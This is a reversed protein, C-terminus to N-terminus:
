YRRKRKKAAGAKQVKKPSAATVAPERGAAPQPGVAVPAPQRIRTPRPTAAARAERGRTEMNKLVVLIQSANFISSYAGITVGIILAISFDQLTPGGFLALALLTFEVTLVTNVSRAMTELLSINTTEGFTRGKHLKLNERIRDFIVITDHVSYGVVTLIAAVFPSNVERQLLAFAGVLVLVDHLLAVIASFAWKLSVQGFFFDYRIMIWIMVLISGLGVAMLARWVLEESVVSGVVEYGANAVGPFRQQLSALVDQGQKRVELYRQQDGAKPDVQTRVFIMNKGGLAPGALQIDNRIHLQDVMQRVASLTRNQEDLSTIPHALRYRLLGGGTFDIGYNLGRVKWCTMGVLILLISIAFWIRRSGVLNWGRGRFFDPM